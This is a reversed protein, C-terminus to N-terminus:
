KIRSTIPNRIGSMKNLFAKASGVRLHMDLRVPIHNKDDTILFRVVEMEKGDDKEIYSLSLCRYVKEDEAEIEYKGNYSLKAMSMGKGDAMPLNIIHGKKWNSSDFSRAKLFINMMDYVCHNYSSDKWINKGRNNERHHKAHCKNNSYSYWVEDITYRKGEEAGKRFYLPKMDLTTYSLLTDRLIFFNDLKGNGKTTLSARYAEHGKYRSKVTTMNAWGTKVWVFNWNYYLTYSLHEGSKFATNKYSCNQASVNMGFAFTLMCVILFILKKM